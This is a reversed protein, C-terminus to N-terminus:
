KFKIAECSPTPMLGTSPYKFLFLKDFNKLRRFQRNDAYEEYVDNVNRIRYKKNNSICLHHFRKYEIGDSGSVDILNQHILYKEESKM